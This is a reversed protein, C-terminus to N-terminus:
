CSILLWDQPPAVAVGGVTRPSITSL